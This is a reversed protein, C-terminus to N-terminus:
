SFRYRRASLSLTDANKLIRQVKLEQHIITLGNEIVDQSALANLLASRVIVEILMYSEDAFISYVCMEDVSLALSLSTKQREVEALLNKTEEKSLPWLARQRLRDTATNKRSDVKELQAKVKQLTNDCANIHHIRTSYQM